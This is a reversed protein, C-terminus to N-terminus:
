PPPPEPPLRAQCLASNNTQKEKTQTHPIKTGSWPNFGHGRCHFRPTKVVPSGPFYGTSIKKYSTHPITVLLFLYKAYYFYVIKM